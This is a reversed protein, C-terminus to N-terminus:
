IQHFVTLGKTFVIPILRWKESLGKPVLGIPSGLFSGLFSGPDLPGMVRGLCREKDLYSSIISEDEPVSSMSGRARRYTHSQYDFGVRFGSSIGTLLVDVFAHHSALASRWRDWRLPTCVQSLVRPPKPPFAARCSALALLDLTYWYMWLASASPFRVSFHSHDYCIYCLQTFPNVLSSM